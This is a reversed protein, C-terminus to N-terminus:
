YSKFFIKRHTQVYHTLMIACSQTCSFAADTPVFWSSVGMWNVRCNIPKRWHNSCGTAYFIANQICMINIYTIVNYKQMCM